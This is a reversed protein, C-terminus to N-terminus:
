LISGIFIMKAFLIYKCLEGSYKFKYFFNVKKILGLLGLLGGLLSM